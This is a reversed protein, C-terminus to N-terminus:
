NSWGYNCITCIYTLSYTDPNRMFVAEKKLKNGPINSVCKLNKCIYDSTRPLTPDKTLLKYDSHKLEFKNEDIGTKFLLTTETIPNNWQCNTCVFEVNSTKSSKSGFIHNKLNIKEDTKLKKYFNNQELKNISFDISFDSLDISKKIIKKLNITSLSLKDKKSDIFKDVKSIDLSYSCKPCFYM